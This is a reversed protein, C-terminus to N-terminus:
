RRRGDPACSPRGPQGPSAAGQAFPGIHDAADARRGPRYASRLSLHLKGMKQGLDVQLVLDRHINTAAGAPM